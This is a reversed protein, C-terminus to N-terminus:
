LIKYIKTRLTFPKLKEKPTIDQWGNLAALEFLAQEIPNKSVILKRRPEQKPKTNYLDDFTIDRTNDEDKHLSTRFIPRTHFYRISDRNKIKFGFEQALSAAAKETIRDMYARSKRLKQFHRITRQVSDRALFFLKQEREKRELRVGREAAEEEPWMDPWTKLTCSTEEYLSYDEYNKCFIPNIFYSM